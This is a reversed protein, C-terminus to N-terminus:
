TTASPSSRSASTVSRVILSASASTSRRSSLTSAASSSSLFARRFTSCAVPAVTDRRPRTTHAQKHNHSHRKCSLVAQQKQRVWGNM